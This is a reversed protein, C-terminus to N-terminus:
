KTAIFLGRKPAPYGEITLEHNDPDLFQELSHYQMWDTQRQEALSTQNQDVCRADSFGAQELLQLIKSVTMISWVNRMQAYRGSPQLVGGEAQDVILTELILEGGNQMLGKLDLLHNLPTRRHYLVGMSFVSDFHPLDNPMDEIGLALFDFRSDRMYKQIAANQVVFRMSPDIGLAYQAGDGLMRWAHYGTGCGVDLVTRGDLSAIHPQLRQWKWDSRWETDILTDFVKFPGKRWPSLAFLADHVQQRQATSGDGEGGVRVIDQDLIISSPTLDPLSDLIEIWAPLDGHRGPPNRAQLAREFHDRHTAFEVRQLFAQNSIM